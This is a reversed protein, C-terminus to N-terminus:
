TAPASMSFNYIVPLPETRARSLAADGSIGETSALVLARYRYWLDELLQAGERLQPVV